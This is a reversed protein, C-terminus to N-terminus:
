QSCEQRMRERETCPKCVIEWFGNDDLEGFGFTVGGHIGTSVGCDGRGCASKKARKESM